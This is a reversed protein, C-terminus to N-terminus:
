KMSEAENCCDCFSHFRGVDPTMTFRQKALAESTDAAWKDENIFCYDMVTHNLLNLMNQHAWFIKYRLLCKCVCVCVRVTAAAGLPTKKKNKKKEQKKNSFSLLIFVASAWLLRQLKLPKATIAERDKPGKLFGM